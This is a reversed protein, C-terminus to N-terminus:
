HQSVLKGAKWTGRIMKGGRKYLIGAGEQQDNQWSGVYKSGNTFYYTGKGNRKGAKFGGVYKSGKGYYYKGAGDKNGNAYTGTFKSGDDKWVYESKGNKCDGAVCGTQDIKKFAGNTWIGIRETGNKYQMFGFGSRKGAKWEGSYLQYSGQTSYEYIGNGEQKNKIWEGVYVDGNDYYLTGFGNRQGNKYQGVYKSGSEWLYTGVGNACDGKICGTTKVEETHTTKTTKTAVEEFAKAHEMDGFDASKITAVHSKDDQKIFVYKISLRDANLEFSTYYVQKHHSVYYLLAGWSKRETPEGLKNIIGSESDTYKIGLPEAGVFPMTGYNYPSKGHVFIRSVKGQKLGIELGKKRSFWVSESFKTNPDDALFAKVEQMTESTVSQGILNFLGNGEIPISQSFTSFHIFLLLVISFVRM